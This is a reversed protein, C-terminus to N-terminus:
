EIYDSLRIFYYPFDGEPHTLYDECCIEVINPHGKLMLLPKVGQKIMDHFEHNKPVKVAKIDSGKEVMFVYSSFGTGLKEIPKYERYTLQFLEEELSDESEM